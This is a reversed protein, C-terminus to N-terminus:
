IGYLKSPEKGWHSPHDPDGFFETGMKERKSDRLYGHAVYTGLSTTLPEVTVFSGNVCSQKLEKYYQDHEDYSVEKSFVPNGDKNRIVVRVNPKQYENEKLVKKVSENIVRKLESETLRVTRKTM